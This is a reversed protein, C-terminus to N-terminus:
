NDLIFNKIKGLARKEIRHTNVQSMGMLEGIHTQNLDFYFRYTIVIKEKWDLSKIADIITIRNVTENEIDETKNDPIVNLLTYPENHNNNNKYELDLSFVFKANDAKAITERRLHKQHPIPILRNQYQSFYKLRGDITPWMYTSIKGKKPNYNPIAKILALIGEQLIDQNKIYDTKSFYKKAIFTVLPLNDEVMQKQEDTLKKM